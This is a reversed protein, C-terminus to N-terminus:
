SLTLFVSVLFMGFALLFILPTCFSAIPCSIVQHISDDYGPDDIKYTERVTHLLFYPTIILAERYHMMTQMMM